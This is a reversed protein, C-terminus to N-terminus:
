ETSNYWQPRILFWLITCLPTQSSKLAAPTENTGNCIPDNLKRDGGTPPADQGAKQLQVNM